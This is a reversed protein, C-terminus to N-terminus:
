RICTFNLRYHNNQTANDYDYCNAKPIVSTLWLRWLSFDKDIITLSIYFIKSFFIFVCLNKCNIKAVIKNNVVAKTDFWCITEASSLTSTFFVFIVILLRIKSSPFVGALLCFVPSTILSKPPWGKFPESNM